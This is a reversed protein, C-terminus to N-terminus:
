SRAVREHFLDWPEKSGISSIGKSYHDAIQGREPIVTLPVNYGRGVNPGGVEAFTDPNHGLGLACSGPNLGSVSFGTSLSPFM